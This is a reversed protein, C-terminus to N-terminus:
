ADEEFIDPWISEALEREHRGLEDHGAKGAKRVIFEKAEEETVLNISPETGQWMSWQYEYFYWNGSRAKHAFLDTGSTYRTGTNPPNHPADYLRMDEKMNIKVKKGEPTMLISESM